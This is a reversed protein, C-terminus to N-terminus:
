ALKIIIFHPRFALTDIQMILKNSLLHDLLLTFVTKQCAGQEEAQLGLLRASSGALCLM